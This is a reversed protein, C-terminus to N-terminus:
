QCLGVGIRRGRRPDAPPGPARPSGWRRRDAGDGPPPGRRVPRALMWGVGVYSLQYLVESTIFPDPTRTGADAKGDEGQNQNPQQPNTPDHHPPRTAVLPRPLVPRPVFKSRSLACPARRPQFDGGVSSADIAYGFSVVKIGWDPVEWLARLGDGGLPGRIFPAAVNLDRQLPGYCVMSRIRNLTGDRQEAGTRAPRCRREGLSASPASSTRAIPM